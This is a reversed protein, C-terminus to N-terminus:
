KFCNATSPSHTSSHEWIGPSLNETDRQFWLWSACDQTVSISPSGAILWGEHTTSTATVTLYPFTPGHLNQVVKQGPSCLARECLCLLPHAKFILQGLISHLGANGKQCNKHPGLAAHGLKMCRFIKYHGTTRYLLTLTCCTDPFPLQQCQQTCDTPHSERRVLRWFATSANEQRGM